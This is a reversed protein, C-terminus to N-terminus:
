YHTAQVNVYGGPQPACADGESRKSTTKEVGTSAVSEAVKEKTSNEDYHDQNPLEEVKPGLVAPTPVALAAEIAIKQPLAAALSSLATAALLVNRM